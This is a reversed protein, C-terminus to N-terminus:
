KSDGGGTLNEVLDRFESLFQTKFVRGRPRFGEETLIVPAISRVETLLESSKTRICLIPQFSNNLTSEFILDVGNIKSKIIAGFLYPYDEFVEFGELPKGDKIAELLMQLGGIDESYAEELKSFLRSLDADFTHRKLLIKSEEMSERKEFIREWNSINLSISKFDMTRDKIARRFALRCDRLLRRSEDVITHVLFPSIDFEPIGENMDFKKFGDIKNGMEGIFNDWHQKPVRINLADEFMMVYDQDEDVVEPKWNRKTKSLGSIAKVVPKFGGPLFAIDSAVTTENIGEMKNMISTAMENVSM